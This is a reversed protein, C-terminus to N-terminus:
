IFILNKVHDFVNVKQHIFKIIIKLININFNIVFAIINMFYLNIQNIQNM